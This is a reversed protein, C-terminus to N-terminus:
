KVLSAGINLQHTPTTLRRLSRRQMSRVVRIRVNNRTLKHQRRMMYNMAVFLAKFHRDSGPQRLTAEALPFVFKDKELM